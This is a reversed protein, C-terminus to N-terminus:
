QGRSVEQIWKVRVEEATLKEEEVSRGYSL